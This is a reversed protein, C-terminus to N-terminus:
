KILGLEERRMTLAVAAIVVAGRIAIQYFPDVQTITMGNSLTTIVLVGLITRQPGGVGGTLATGGLVIAAISDLLFPDGMAPAGSSMRVALMVGGLAALFGSLAFAYLKIRDVPVGSMRAVREGDGIAVLYRGFRTRKAVFITVAFVALAWVGIVPFGAVTTGGMFSMLLESNWPQPRGQCLILGIGQIMFLSGLTVLFSPLKGYAHLAGNLLGCLLGAALAAVVGLDGWANVAMAASIGALTVISGVSLDISGILIVFTGALGVVLLVSSQRIINFANIPTAFAPSAFAFYIVLVVWASLPLLVGLRESLGVERAKLTDPQLHDMRSDTAERQADDSM